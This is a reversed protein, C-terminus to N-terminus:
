CKGEEIDNLEQEVLHWDTEGVFGAKDDLIINFYFKKDFSARPTDPCEPNENGYDIQIGHERFWEITDQIIEGYSCSWIILVVDERQSLRQLVEKARPYFEGGVSGVRYDGEFVTDHLDILWYIRDWGREKMMRFARKINFINM